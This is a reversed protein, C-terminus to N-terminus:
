KRVMEAVYKTWWEHSAKEAANARQTVIDTVEKQARVGDNYGRMNGIAYAVFAVFTSFVVSALLDATM